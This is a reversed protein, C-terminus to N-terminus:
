FSKTGDPALTVSITVVGRLDGESDGGTVTFGLLISAGEALPPCLCLFGQM